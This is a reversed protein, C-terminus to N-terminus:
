LVKNLMQDINTKGNQNQPEFSKMEKELVASNLHDPTSQSIIDLAVAVASNVDDSYRAQALKIEFNANDAEAMLSKTNLSSVLVPAAGNLQLYSFGGLAILIIIAGLGLALSYRASELLHSVLTKRIQPASVIAAWSNARFDKAPSIKKLTKLQQIFNDM